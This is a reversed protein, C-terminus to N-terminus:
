ENKGWADWGLSGLLTHSLQTHLFNCGVGLTNVCVSYKERLLMGPNWFFLYVLSRLIATGFVYVLLLGM